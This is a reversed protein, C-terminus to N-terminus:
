SHHRLCSTARGLLDRDVLAAGVGRRNFAIVFLMFRFDLDALDFVERVDDLLIM